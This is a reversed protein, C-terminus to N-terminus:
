CDVLVTGSATRPRAEPLRPVQRPSGRVELSGSAVLQAYSEAGQEVLVALTDVRWSGDACEASLEIRGASIVPVDVRRKIGAAFDIFGGEAHVLPAETFGAGLPNAYASVSLADAGAEALLEAVRQTDEFDIGDQTSFEVADIRCWIPFDGGTRLKCARLVESHLRARNEVGGGYDDSRFNWAPSLFESLIYGHAAHIEVADFGARQARESARAFDAVLERLDDRTAARIKPQARAVAALLLELEEPTLDFDDMLQYVDSLLRHMIQKARANGGAQEFGSVTNLFEQVERTDYIKVTM